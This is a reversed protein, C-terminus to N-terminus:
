NANIAEQGKRGVFIAFVISIGDPKETYFIFSLAPFKKTGGLRISRRDCSGSDQIKDM